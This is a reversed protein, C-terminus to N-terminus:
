RGDDLEEAQQRVEDLAREQQDRSFGGSEAHRGGYQWSPIADWVTGDTSGDGSSGRSRLWGLLRAFM